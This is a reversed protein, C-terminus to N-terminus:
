AFVRSKSQWIDGDWGPARIDKDTPPITDGFTEDYIRAGRRALMDEPTRYATDCEPRVVFLRGTTEEKVVAYWGQGCFSCLGNKLKHPYGTWPLRKESGM